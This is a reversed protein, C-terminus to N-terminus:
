KPRAAARRRGPGPAGAHPQVPQVGTAQITTPRDPFGVAALGAATSAARGVGPVAQRTVANAIEIVVEDAPFGLRISLRVAERATDAPLLQAVQPLRPSAAPRMEDDLVTFEAGGAAQRLRAAADAPLLSALVGAASRLARLPGETEGLRHEWRSVDADVAVGLLPGTGSTLAARLAHPGQEQLIQAPDRGALAATRLSATFPRLIGYARIAAKRGAPDDDFAATVGNGALDCNDALLAAQATTLSTGCPALGALRGGGALTVAIADFPGEVIVPVAGARLGRRAEHLGYLLGGKSYLSTEPSNLYKPVDPASGPRARGTFGTVQGALDRVPLMVRDRFRDILTGRSSPRALGAAEIEEAAYGAQLLHGTLATWGAPAYGIHWRGAAAPDLGRSRLYGATWSNALRAAYFAAADNLVAPLRTEPPPKAPQAAPRTRRATPQPRTVTERATRPAAAPSAHPLARALHGTIQASAAIVREGVALVALAPQARPDTGAWDAPSGPPHPAAIGYRAFIIFAIADAEARRTGTCADGSTTAGPPYPTTRHALVHGLQHALAWAAQGSDLDPLIRIRRPTWFTVGDAPAGQENEVAFGERRALWGLAEQLRAPAEGSQRPLPPQAAAPPGTTQSIDWLYTVRSADRWGPRTTEKAQGSQQGDGPHRRASPFVEIGKESRNVQRGAARWEEYSRLMTAGPRQAEILLVNAFSEGPLRAAAALCRAWDGSTRVAGAEALLRERLVASKDGNGSSAPVRPM